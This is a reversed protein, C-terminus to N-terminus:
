FNKPLKVGFATELRPLEGYYAVRRVFRPMIGSWKYEGIVGGKEDEGTQVFNYLDHMTVMDGEMGVVESVYTVRRHGDRMRSIQVIVHLASAIQQRLSKMPIQLDAMSIM